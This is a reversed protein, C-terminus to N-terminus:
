QEFTYHEVQRLYVATLGIGGIRELYAHVARDVRVSFLAAFRERLRQEPALGFLRYGFIAAKLYAHVGYRRKRVPAVDRERSVTLVCHPYAVARAAIERPQIVEYLVERFAFLPELVFQFLEFVIQRDRLFLHLFRELLPALQQFKQVLLRFQVGLKIQVFLVVYYYAVVSLVVAIVSRQGCLSFYLLVINYVLFILDCHHLAVYQGIIGYIRFIHM